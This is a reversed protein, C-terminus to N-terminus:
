ALKELVRDFLGADVLERIRDFDDVAIRDKKLPRIQKELERYVKDILKGPRLGEHYHIAFRACLAEIELVQRVHSVITTLKHAAAPGMSVHDEKNASTPISDVSAPHALVKNESVLAAATVQAIMMGSSLGSTEVLFAPLRSLDPNVLSEIRRESISALESMAIALYDCPMAVPQGHFNGGSIVKGEEPFLLPNDTVANMEREFVECVWTLTDRVAGHVQPVCRLSYADQVRDDDERHSERIQSGAMLVRLNAAVTSHGPHSRVSAILHDFAADTGRMGETSMAACLDAFRVLRRSEIIAPLAIAQIFQTGNILALGEKAKLQLPELGVKKLATSAKVLKGQFFCKGEGMATLAVHSLPALDGSAGVSGRGPVYPVIGANLMAVYHMVTDLRAGSHGQILSNIRLILAVRVVDESLPEGVGCCHSRILNTQLEDLKDDEIRTSSLKGFGTNLGYVVEGSDLISEVFKRARNIKKRCAPAVRVENYDGKLYAEVKDITLSEGDLILAKSRAM